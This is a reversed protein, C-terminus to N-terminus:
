RRSCTGSESWAASSWVCWTRPTLSMTSSKQLFIFHSVHTLNLYIFIKFFVVIQGTTFAHRSSGPRVRKPSGPARLSSCSSSNTQYRHQFSEPCWRVSPCLCVPLEFRWYLLWCLSNPEFIECRVHTYSHTYSWRMTHSLALVGLAFFYISLLMNIYEQSFVQTSVRSWNPPDLCVDPGQLHAPSVGIVKFFLYLGFLTCSAIIPFRAADRSTITEPMDAGNQSFILFFQKTSFFFILSEAAELTQNTFYEKCTDKCTDTIILTFSSTNSNWCSWQPFKFVQTKLQLSFSSEHFM